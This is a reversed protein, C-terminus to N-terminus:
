LREKYKQIFSFAEISIKHGSRLHYHDDCYFLIIITIVLADVAPQTSSKKQQYGM